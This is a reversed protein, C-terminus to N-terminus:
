SSMGLAPFVAKLRTQGEGKKEVTFGLSKLRAKWSRGPQPSEGEGGRGGGRDRHM